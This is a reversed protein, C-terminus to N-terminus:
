PLVSLQMAKLQGQFKTTLSQQQLCWVSRHCSMYIDHQYWGHDKRETPQNGYARFTFTRCAVHPVDDISKCLQSGRSAEHSALCLHAWLHLLPLRNHLCGIARKSFTLGEEYLVCIGPVTCKALFGHNSLECSRGSNNQQKCMTFFHGRFKYVM